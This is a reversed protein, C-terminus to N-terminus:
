KRKRDSSKPSKKNKKGKQPLEKLPRAKGLNRLYRLENKDFRGFCDRMYEMGEENEAALYAAHLVFSASVRHSALEKLSPPLASPFDEFLKRAYDLEGMRISYNILSSMLLLKRPLEVLAGVAFAGADYLERAKKFDGKLAHAEALKLASDARIDQFSETNDQFKPSYFIADAKKIKGASSLVTIMLGDIFARTERACPGEGPFKENHYIKLATKLGDDGRQALMLQSAMFGLGLNLEDFSIPEKKLNEFFESARELDGVKLYARFLGISHNLRALALEKTAPPIDLSDYIRKVGHVDYSEEYVEMLTKAADVRKMILSADTEKVSEWLFLDNEHARVLDLDALMLGMPDSLPGASDLNPIPVLANQLHYIAEAEDMRGEEALKKALYTGVKIRASSFEHLSDLNSLPRHLNLAMDLEGLKAYNVIVDISSWFREVIVDHELGLSETRQYLNMAKQHLNLAIYNKIMLGAARAKLGPSELKSDETNWLEELLTEAKGILAPSDYKKILTIIVAARIRQNESGRTIPSDTLELAKESQGTLALAYAFAKKLKEPAGPDRQIVTKNILSHYLEEAEKPLSAIGHAIIVNSAAKVFADLPDDTQTIKAMTRFFDPEKESDFEKDEEKPSPVLTILPAKNKDPGELRPDRKVGSSEPRMQAKTFDSLKEEGGSATKETEEAPKFNVVTFLKSPLTRHAKPGWSDADMLALTERAESFLDKELLKIVLAEAAIARLLKQTKTEKLNLRERFYRGAEAEDGLDLSGAVLLFGALAKKEKFEDINVDKEADKLTETAQAILENKIEKTLGREMYSVFFSPLKFNAPSKPTEGLLKAKADLTLGEGSERLLERKPGNLYSATEV